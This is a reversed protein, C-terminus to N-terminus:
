TEKVISKRSLLASSIINDTLALLSKGGQIALASSSDSVKIVNTNSKISKQVHKNNNKTM